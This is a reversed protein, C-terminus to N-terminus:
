GSLNITAVPMAPFSRRIKVESEAFNGARDLYFNVPAITKASHLM